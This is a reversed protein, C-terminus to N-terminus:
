YAREVRADPYYTQLIDLADHGARAMGEAGFQCMGVGHGFGRGHTFRVVDGRLDVQFFSSKLVAGKAPPRLGQASSSFNCANRFSEARLEYHRGHHDLIRFLTPRGSRNRQAVTIVRITGLKALSLRHRKGFAALRRSLTDRNRQITPWVYHPSDICWAPHPVPELPSVSAIGWAETPSIGAGGCTSSYYAKIIQNDYTLVLGRTDLVAQVSRAHNTRGAYAQAAQTDELDYHGSVEGRLLRHLAYSRAAIAQAHYSALSWHDYLERDLVGPLYAELHIYNVADFVRGGRGVVLRVEGGYPSKGVVLAKDGLPRILLDDTGPEDIPRGDVAWRGSQRSVTAPPRVTRPVQGPLLLQIAGDGGFRLTSSDREIRIRIIPENTVPRVPAPPATTECGISWLAIGWVAIILCVGGCRSM